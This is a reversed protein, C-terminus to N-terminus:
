AERGFSPREFAAWAAPAAWLSEFYEHDSSSAQDIEVDMGCSWLRLACDMRMDEYGANGKFQVAHVGKQVEHMKSADRIYQPQVKTFNVHGPGAMRTGDLYIEYGYHAYQNKSDPGDSDCIIKIHWQLKSDPRYLWFESWVEVVKNERDQYWTWTDIWQLTQNRVTHKYQQSVGGLGYIHDSILEKLRKLGQAPGEVTANIGHFPDQTNPM